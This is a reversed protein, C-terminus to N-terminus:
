IEIIFAEVVSFLSLNTILTSLSDYFSPIMSSISHIQRFYLRASAIVFPVLKGINMVPIFFLMYM